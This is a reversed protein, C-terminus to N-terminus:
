GAPITVLPLGEKGGSETLSFLLMLYAFVRKSKFDRDDIWFWHERYKVAVFGDAPREVGSHIDILRRQDTDASDRDDLSPNTRGEEVHAAPARVQGSLEVMIALTSRTLMALETDSRAVEGFSITYETANRRIGLLGAFEDAAANIEATVNERRIVIVTSDQVSDKRTVRMGMAGGVQLVGFLEVIRYFNEDGSRERLGVSRQARQGNIAEVTIPLVLEAPWGAQLMFMVASPPIPTMFTKNFNSGTIPAYTITPRDTYKGSGGITASNTTGFEAASGGDFVKAGLNVSSELTYGSVISAVEVFLPMDAYRLKVINLLTQEKWSDSIAQNYDFRDRPLSKPGIPTCGAVLFGTLVVLVLHKRM